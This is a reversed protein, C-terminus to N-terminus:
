KKAGDIAQQAIKQYEIIVEALSIYEKDKMANGSAILELANVMQEVADASESCLKHPTKDDWYPARLRDILAKYYASIM